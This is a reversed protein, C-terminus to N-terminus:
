ACKDAKELSLITLLTAFAVWVIYPAMLLRVVKDKTRAIILVATVFIGLILAVSLRIYRATFFAWCWIINLILNAVFLAVIIKNKVSRGFAIAILVYLLTWVIPFVVSPPTISPKICAYWKSAVSKTTFYSSILSTAIVMLVAAIVNINLKM